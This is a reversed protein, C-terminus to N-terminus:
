TTGHRNTARRRAPTRPSPPPAPRSRRPAARGGGRRPRGSPAAPRPRRRPARGRGRSPARRSAAPGRWSGSPRSRRWTGVREDGVGVAPPDGHRDRVVRRKSPSRLAPTPRRASSRGGPLPPRGAAFPYTRGDVPQGRARASRPEGIGTRREGNEWGHGGHADGAPDPAALRRQHRPQAPVGAHPRDQGVVTALRRIASSASTRRWNTSRNPASVNPASPASSRAYRAPRTKPSGTSTAAKFAMTCGATRGRAPALRRAPPPLRRPRAPKRPRASSNSVPPSATTSRTTQTSAGTSVRTARADARSPTGASATRARIRWWISGAVRARM